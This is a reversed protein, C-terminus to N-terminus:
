LVLIKIFIRDLRVMFVKIDVEIFILGFCKFFELIIWLFIVVVEVYVCILGYLVVVCM